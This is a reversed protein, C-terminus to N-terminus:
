LIEEKCNTLFYIQFNEGQNRKEERKKTFFHVRIM